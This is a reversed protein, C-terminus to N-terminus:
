WINQVMYKDKLCNKNYTAYYKLKLHFIQQSYFLYLYTQIQFLFYKSVIKKKVRIKAAFELISGIRAFLANYTSMSVSKEDVVVISNDQVFNITRM